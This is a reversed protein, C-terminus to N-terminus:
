LHVAIETQGEEAEEVIPHERVGMSVWCRGGVVGMLELVRRHARQPVGVVVAVEVLNFLLEAEMTMFLVLVGLVALQLLELNDMEM